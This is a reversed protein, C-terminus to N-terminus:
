SCFSLPYIKGAEQPNAFSPTTVNVKLRCADQQSIDLQGVFAEEAQRRVSEFPSSLISILFAQSEPYYFLQYTRTDTVLLHGNSLIRQPIKTFDRMRIGSIILSGDWSVPPIMETPILSIAPLVPVPESTSPRRVLIMLLILLIICVVFMSVLFYIIRKKMM